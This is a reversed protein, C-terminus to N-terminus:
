SFLLRTSAAPLVWLCIEEAALCSPVRRDTASTQNAASKASVRWVPLQVGDSAAKLSGSIRPKPLTGSKRRAM